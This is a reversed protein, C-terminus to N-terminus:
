RSPCDTNRRISMESSAISMWRNTDSRYWTLGLSYKGNLNAHQCRSFWWGGHYNRACHTASVDMDRDKASFSMGNQYSLADTANGSYGHVRLRYGSKESDVAFSQYEARWREGYIDLMDIRLKSCNDRTLRHLIENGIWYERVPSGFGLSYDHWTRDFDVTGDVRRAVVTWEGRCHVLLPRAGEGVELLRLGDATGNPLPRGLAGDRCDGIAESRILHYRDELQQLSTFAAIPSQPSQSPPFAVPLSSGNLRQLRDIAEEQRDSREQLRSASVSLAQVTRRLNNLEERTLSLEAAKRAADVGLKAVDRKTSTGSREIADELRELRSDVNGILTAANESVNSMERSLALRAKELSKVRWSLSSWEHSEHAAIRKELSARDQATLSVRRELNKVRNELDVRPRYVESRRWYGHRRAYRRGDSRHGTGLIGKRGNEKRDAAGSSSAAVTAVNAELKEGGEAGGEIGGEQRIPWSGAAGPAPDCRLSKVEIQVSSLQLQSLFFSCADASHLISLHVFPLYKCLLWSAFPIGFLQPM